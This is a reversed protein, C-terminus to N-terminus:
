FELGEERAADALAKVRGHYLKGNRDFVVSKVKVKKAAAAIEKGIIVAKDTMTGSTKKGVTTVTTITTSNDDNILQASIHMNTISVTLRPRLATGHIKSRIRKKRLSTNLSKKSLRNM